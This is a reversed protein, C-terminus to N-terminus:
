AAMGTVSANYSAKSICCADAADQDFKVTRKGLDPVSFNLELARALVDAKGCNGKLGILKKWEAPRWTQIQVDSGVSCPLQGVVIGSIFAVEATSYVGGRGGSPKEVAISVPYFGDKDLQSAMADLGAPVADHLWGRDEWPVSEGKIELGACTTIGWALRKTSVDVGLYVPVRELDPSRDDQAEHM